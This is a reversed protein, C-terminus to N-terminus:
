SGAESTASPWKFPQVLPTSFAILGNDTDDNTNTFSHGPGMFLSMANRIVMRRTWSLVGVKSVSSSAICERFAPILCRKAAGSNATLLLALRQLGTRECGFVRVFAKSAYEHRGSVTKDFWRVRTVDFGKGSRKQPPTATSEREEYTSLLGYIAPQM